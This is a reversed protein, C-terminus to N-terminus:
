RLCMKQSLLVGQSFRRKKVSTRIPKSAPRFIIFVNSHIYASNAHYAFVCTELLTILPRPIERKLTSHKAYM